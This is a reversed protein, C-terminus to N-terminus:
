ISLASSAVTHRGLFVLNKAIITGIIDARQALLIVEEEAYPALEPVNASLDGDGAVKDVVAFLGALSGRLSTRRGSEKGGIDLGM